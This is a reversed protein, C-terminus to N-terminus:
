VIYVGLLSSFTKAAQIRNCGKKLLHEVKISHIDKQWLGILKTIIAYESSNEGLLTKLDAHEVPDCESEDIEENMTTAATTHGNASQFSSGSQVGSQREDNSQNFCVNIDDDDGYEIPPPVIQSPSNPSQAPNQFESPPTLLSSPNSHISARSISSRDFRRPRKPTSTIPPPPMMSADFSSQENFSMNNRQSRTRSFQSGHESQLIDSAESEDDAHDNMGFVDDIITWDVPMPRTKTGRAFQDRNIWGKIAPDTFFNNIKPKFQNTM